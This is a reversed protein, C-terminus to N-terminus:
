NYTQAQFASGQAGFSENRVVVCGSGPVVAFESRGGTAIVVSGGTVRCSTPNFTFRVTAGLGFQTPRCGGPLTWNDAAILTITNGQVTVAPEVVNAIGGASVNVTLRGSPQADVVITAQVNRTTVGGNLAVVTQQVTGDFRYVGVLPLDSSGPPRLRTRAVYGNIPALEVDNLTSNGNIRVNLTGGPTPRGQVTIRTGNPLQRTARIRGDPGIRGTVRTNIGAGGLRVRVTATGTNGDVTSSVTGTFTKEGNNITINGTAANPLTCALAPSGTGAGVLAALALIVLASRVLVSRNSM